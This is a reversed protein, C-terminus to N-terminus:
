DVIKRAASLQQQVECFRLHRCQQRISGERIVLDEITGRMPTTVPPPSQGPRFATMRATAHNVTIVIEHSVPGREARVAAVPVEVRGEAPVGAIVHLGVERHGAGTADQVRWSIFYTADNGRTESHTQDDGRLSDSAM